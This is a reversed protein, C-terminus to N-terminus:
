GSPVWLSNVIDTPWLHPNHQVMKMMFFHIRNMSFIFYDYIFLISISISFHIFLTLFLLFLIYIFIVTKRLETDEKLIQQSFNQNIMTAELSLKQPHNVSEVDDSAPPERATESVTLFDFTSGERKDLFVMGKNKLFYSFLVDHINQYNNIYNNNKCVM